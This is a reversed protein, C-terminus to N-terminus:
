APPSIHEVYLPTAAMLTTTDTPIVATVRAYGAVWGATYHPQLEDTLENLFRAVKTVFMKGPDQLESDKDDARRLTSRVLGPWWSYPESVVEQPVAAPAVHGVLHRISGHLLLRLGGGSPYSDDPQDTDLFVVAGLATGFSMPAEFQVWQGARVGPETERASKGIKIGAFPTNVEAEM